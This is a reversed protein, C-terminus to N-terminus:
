SQPFPPGDRDSTPPRVRLGKLRLRPVINVLLHHYGHGGFKTLRVETCIDHSLLLQGVRGAEILKIVQDMRQGDSPMDFAPDRREM